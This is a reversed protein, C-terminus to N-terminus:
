ITKLEDGFDVAMHGLKPLQEDENTLRPVGGLQPLLNPLQPAATHVGALVRSVQDGGLRAMAQATGAFPHVQGKEEMEGLLKLTFQDLAMAQDLEHRQVHCLVITLSCKRM